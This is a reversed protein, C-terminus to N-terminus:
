HGYGGMGVAVLSLEIGETHDSFGVPLHFANKLSNISNLNAEEWRAPYDSTCHMLIVQERNEKGITDIAEEIEGLGTM